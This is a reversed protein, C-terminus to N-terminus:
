EVLAIPISRGITELIDPLDSANSTEYFEGYGHVLSEMFAAQDAESTYVEGCQSEGDEGSTDYYSVPFISIHEDGGAYDAYSVAEARIAGACGTLDCNDLCFPVGDTIMIITQLAGPNDSRNDILTEIAMDLARAHDTGAGRGSPDSWCDVGMWSGTCNDLIEWESRITSYDQSIWRLPSYVAADATFAVLGVRDRPFNNEGLYDLLTLLGERAETVESGFSMSVDQVVMIDRYRFAGTSNCTVDMEGMDDRDGHLKGFINVLSLQLQGNASDAAMRIDVSVANNYDAGADFSRTDFDWGGFTVDGPEAEAEEGALRNANVVEIAATRASDQDADLRTLEVLAAHSGADAANQGQVRVLNLYGVDITLAAAGVLVVFSLALVVPYSGRRARRPLIPNM